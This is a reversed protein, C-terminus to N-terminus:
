VLEKLFSWNRSHRKPSKCLHKRALFKQLREVDSMLAMIFVEILPKQPM